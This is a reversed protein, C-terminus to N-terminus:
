QSTQAAHHSHAHPSADQAKAAQVPYPLGMEKSLFKGPIGPSNSFGYYAFIRKPGSKSDFTASQFEYRGNGIERALVGKPLALMKAHYLAKYVGTPDPAQIPVLTPQALAAAPDYNEDIVVLAGTIGKQNVHDRLDIVYTSPANSSRAVEVTAFYDESKQITALATGVLSPVADASKNAVARHLQTMEGELGVATQGHHDETMFHHGHFGHVSAHILGLIREADTWQGTKAAAALQNFHTKVLEYNEVDSYLCHARHPYFFPTKRMPQGPEAVYVSIGWPFKDFLNMVTYYGSAADYTARKQVSRPQALKMHTLYQVYAQVDPDSTEGRTIKEYYLM